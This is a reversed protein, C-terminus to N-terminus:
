SDWQAAIATEIPTYATDTTLTDEVTPPTFTAMADVLGQVNSADLTEISNGM